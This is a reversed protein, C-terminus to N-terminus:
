YDDEGGEEGFMEDSDDSDDVSDGDSEENMDDTEGEDLDEGMMEEAIEGSILNKTLYSFEDEELDEGVKRQVKYQKPGKGEKRVLFPYTKKADEAMTIGILEILFTWEVVHDYIYLLKQHPDNILASLRTSAFLPLEEFEPEPLFVYRKGKKWYDDSIFFSANHKNDFDVSQLLAFHLDELNQSSKVEFVRVVEDDEEFHIRFRYIAM